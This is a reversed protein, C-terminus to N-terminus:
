GRWPFRVYSLLVLAIGAACGILLDRGVLPDRFSGALLRSWDVLLGPSHRRMLPELAIYLLWLFTALFLWLAASNWLQYLEGFTAVHHEGFLWAIAALVFTVIALRTAM